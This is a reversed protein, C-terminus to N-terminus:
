ETEEAEKALMESQVDAIKQGLLICEAESGQEVGSSVEIEKASDVTRLVTYSGDLKGAVSARGYGDAAMYLSDMIYSDEALSVEEGKRPWVKTAQSGVNQDRLEKDVHKWRERYNPNSPRLQFSISKIDSMRVINEIFAATDPVPDVYAGIMFGDRAEEIINAFSTRFVSDKMKKLSYAILSYDINYYFSAEGSIEDDVMMSVTSKQDVVKEVEDRYRVVKGSILDHVVGDRDVASKQELDVIAYKYGHSYIAGSEELLEIIEAKKNEFAGMLHVRALYFSRAM